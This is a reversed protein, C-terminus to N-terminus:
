IRAGFTYDIPGAWSLQGSKSRRYVQSQANFVRGYSRVKSWAMRQTTSHEWPSKAPLPGSAWERVLKGQPTLVRFWIAYRAQGNKIEYYAKQSLSLTYRIVIIADTGDKRISLRTGLVYSENAAEAETPVLVTGTAVALSGAGLIKFMDRRSIGTQSPVELEDIEDISILESM